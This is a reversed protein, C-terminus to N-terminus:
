TALMSGGQGRCRRSLARLIEPSNSMWGTPKKMPDGRDSQQGFQRQDGVIREVKEDKLLEVVCPRQWSTAQDPNEHLFYRGGKMQM